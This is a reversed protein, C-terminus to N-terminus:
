SKYQYVTAAFEKQLLITPTSTKKTLIVHGVYANAHASQQFHVQSETIVSGTSPPNLRRSFSLSPASHIPRSM